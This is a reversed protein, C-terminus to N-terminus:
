GQREENAVAPRDLGMAREMKAVQAPGRGRILDGMLRTATQGNVWAQDAAAKHTFCGDRFWFVQHFEYEAHFFEVLEGAHRIVEERRADTLPDGAQSSVFTARTDTETM